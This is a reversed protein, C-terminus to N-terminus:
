AEIRWASTSTLFASCIALPQPFDAAFHACRPVQGSAERPRCGIAHIAQKRLLETPILAFEKAPNKGPGPRIEATPEFCLAALASRLTAPLHAAKRAPVAPSSAFRKCRCQDPQAGTLHAQRRRLRVWAPEAAKKM